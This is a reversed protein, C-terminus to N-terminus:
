PIATPPLPTPTYDEANPLTPLTAYPGLPVAQTQWLIWGLKGRYQIQFWEGRQNRAMVNVYAGQGLGGLPKSKVTPASYVTLAPVSVKAVIQLTPNPNGTNQPLRDTAPRHTCVYKVPELQKSVPVGLNDVEYATVAITSGEPVAKFTLRSGFLVASGTPYTKIYRVTEGAEGFIGNDNLDVAFAIYYAPTGESFGDYTAYANVVGCSRRYLSLSVVNARAVSVAILSMSILAFAAIVFVATRFRIM